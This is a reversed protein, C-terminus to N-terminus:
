ENIPEVVPEQGEQDMESELPENTAEEPASVPGNESLLDENTTNEGELANDGNEPENQAESPTDSNGDLTDETPIDDSPEVMEQEEIPANITEEEPKAPMSGVAEHLMSKNALSSYPIDM